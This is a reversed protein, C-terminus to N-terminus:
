DFYFLDSLTWGNDAAHSKALETAHQTDASCVKMQLPSWRLISLDEDPTARLEGDEDVCFIQGEETTFFLELTPRGDISYNM